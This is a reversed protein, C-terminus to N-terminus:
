VKKFFPVDTDDDLPKFDDGTSEKFLDNAPFYSFNVSYSSIGYRNKLCVLEIERPTAAKCAKVRDRKEQIPKKPDAFLPESLCQLQLGWIVDATFEIGGSEKLSEFDIPTLYNARNVSSIIFVTIDLERSIRKLETITSDVTEKISSQRRSSDPAPQLIQLYDIFVVPRTNNRRIYQRIYDGIFSINCNFNGEVISFSEGVAAIYEAAAEQVVDKNHGDRISLSSIKTFPDKIAIRRALSKSVMELRSQELSFYIVDHGHEALQEGLQHCFTTKGLSSIAAVVYLGSYLGGAKSDLREFGTKKDSKFREIELGMLTKIYTATNDPKAAAQREAAELAQVFETKDATWHENPDKYGGCIDVTIFSINLRALGNRLTEAAKKGAADNDLCIILTAATPKEELQKIFKEANNTSNLAVAQRGAQIVTLADIAGEVIFVEQIEDMYLCRRNFIGMTGGKPFMKKFQPATNKDTSRAVYCKQTVPIILRGVPYMSVGDGGPNNAPDAAADYGLRYFRALQLDIGRLALYDRAADLHKECELYYETYDVPKENVAKFEGPKHGQPANQHDSHGNERDAANNGQGSSEAARHANQPSGAAKEKFDTAADPRYPDITINLEDALTKLATNYDAGSYQQYLDIIDGSFNCGFCKLGTNDASKKNYTLGDGHSGHGCLPCIYSIEGNVHRQAPSTIGTILTRWQRKVEQRASDRDM